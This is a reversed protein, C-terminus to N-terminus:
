NLSEPRSLSASSCWGNKFDLAALRFAADSSPLCDVIPNQIHFSTIEAHYGFCPLWYDIKGLGHRSGDPTGHLRYLYCHIAFQLAEIQYPYCVVKLSLELKSIYLSLLLEPIGPISM